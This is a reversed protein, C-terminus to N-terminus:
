PRSHVWASFLHHWTCAIAELTGSELLDSFDDIAVILLDCRSLLEAMDLSDSFAGHLLHIKARWNSSQQCM